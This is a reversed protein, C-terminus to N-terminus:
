HTILSISFFIELGAAGFGTTPQLGTFSSPTSCGSGSTNAFLSGSSTCVSFGEKRGAEYDEIRLEQEGSISNKKDIKAYRFNRFFFCQGPVPFSGCDFHKNLFYLLFFLFLYLKYALHKRQFYTFLYIFLGFLLM